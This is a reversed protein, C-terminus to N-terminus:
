IKELLNAEKIKKLLLPFLLLLCASDMRAYDLMEKPLPRIRWDSKQYLKDLHLGL